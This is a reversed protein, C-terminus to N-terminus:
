LVMKNYCILTFVLQVSVCSLLLKENEGCIMSTHNVNARKNGRGKLRMICVLSSFESFLITGKFVPIYVIDPTVMSVSVTDGINYLFYLLVDENGLYIQTQERQPM